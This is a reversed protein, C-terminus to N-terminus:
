DAEQLVQTPMPEHPVLATKREDSWTAVRLGVLKSSEFEADSPREWVHLGDDNIFFTHEGFKSELKAVSLHDEPIVKAGTQGVVRQIQQESLKMIRVRRRTVSAAHDNNWSLGRLAQSVDCLRKARDRRCVSISRAAM